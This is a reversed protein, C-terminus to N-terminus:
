ISSKDLFHGEKRFDLHSGISVLHKLIFTSKKKALTNSQWVNRVSLEPMKRDLFLKPFFFYMLLTTAPFGLM